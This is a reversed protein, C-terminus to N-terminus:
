RSGLYRGFRDLELCVCSGYVAYRPEKAGGSECGKPQGCWADDAYVPSNVRDCILNVRSRTPETRQALLRRDRLWAVGSEYAM